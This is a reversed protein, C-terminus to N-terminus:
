SKSNNKLEELSMIIGPERRAEKISTQEKESLEMVPLSKEWALWRMHEEEFM